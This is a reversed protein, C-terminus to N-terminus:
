CSSIWSSLLQLVCKSCKRFDMKYMSYINQLEPLWSDLEEFPTCISALIFFNHGNSSLRVLSFSLKVLQSIVFEVQSILTWSAFHVIEVQSIKALWTEVQSIWRHLGLYKRGVRNSKKKLYKKNLDMNEGQLGGIM